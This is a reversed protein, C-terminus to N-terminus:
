FKRNKIEKVWTQLQRQLTKIIAVKFDKESFKIWVHSDNQHQCRNVVKKKENLKPEEQTNTHHPIKLPFNSM